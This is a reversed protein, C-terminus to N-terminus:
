ALRPWPDATVRPESPRHERRVDAVLKDIFLCDEEETQDAPVVATVPALIDAFTHEPALAPPTEADLVGPRIIEQDAPVGTVKINQSAM